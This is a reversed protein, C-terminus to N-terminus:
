QVGARKLEKIVIDRATRWEKLHCRDTHSNIRYTDHAVKIAKQPGATVAAKYILHKRRRAEQLLRHAARKGTNEHVKNVRNTPM